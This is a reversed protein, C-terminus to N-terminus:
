STGTSLFKDFLKALNELRQEITLGKLTAQLILDNEQLFQVNLLYQSSVFNQFKLNELDSDEMKKMQFFLKLTNKKLYIRSIFLKAAIIRTAFAALLVKCVEPMKGFRDELEDEIDSLQTLDKAYLLKHYYAMRENSNGIYEKPFYLDADIDLKTEITETKRKQAIGYEKEKIEEIEENLIKVYMEFGIAHIFGSQQHGLLNGAGRIELDRLALKFGAGLDAFEEIVSLRKMAVDTLRAPHPALLYAYAQQDSRGVRGRLQYLQSLGFKDAHNIIITNTSPIDLGNEIIMTAVLVDFKREKFDHMVKELSREQMQGHAIAVRARPIIREIINKIAEITEVRNHVFFVQGERNLEDDIIRYIKDDEWQITRTIIPMRNRPPTEINSLGRVGLLSMHLTRPIPTASMSLIDVDLRMKKIKEKHRVGFRQEEDIILLGLDKFKIDDSLLRHTGIVIDVEGLALKAITEKQQKPTSFRSLLNISVPFDRLRETFTEYHQSALITTPVLVATQKSDQVSKFAARVAIETKGFGVDGCILRDMPETKEMDNKVEKTATVQDPTDEYPFSAELERQWTTDPSFAHGRIKIRGAYVEVLEKAIKEVAKRTKSKEREWAKSGLKNIKPRVGEDSSYKQLKNLNEFHVFLTEEGDYELRVCEKVSGAVNIKELGRFLGIGYDVHVVLDGYNISRLARLYSASNIRKITKRRRMQRFVQHYTMVMLGIDPIAFGSSLGGKRIAIGGSYGSESEEIIDLLREVQEPLEAFLYLSKWKKASQNLFEQLKQINGSFKIPLESQLNLVTLSKDTEYGSIINADSRIATIMEVPDFYYTDPNEINQKDGEFQEFVEDIRKRNEKLRNELIHPEDLWVIATKLYDIIATNKDTVSLGSSVIEVSQIKEISRQSLVNFTRISEIEDGFYEIRIPYEGSWSFVDIIGGRVSFEGMQDVLEVREFGMEALEEILYELDYEEGTNLKIASNKVNKQSVIKDCLSLGCISSITNKNNVIKSLAEVRLSIKGPNPKRQAYPHNDIHPFFASINKDAIEIIDEYFNEAKKEDPTIFAFPRNYKQSLFFATIANLSGNCGKIFYKKEINFKQAISSFSPSSFIKPLLNKM